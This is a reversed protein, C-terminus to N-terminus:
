KKSRKMREEEQDDESFEPFESAPRAPGTAFLEGSREAQDADLDVDDQENGFNEEMEHEPEGQSEMAHAPEGQSEMECEPEDRPVDTRYRRGEFEMWRAQLSRETTVNRVSDIACSLQYWMSSRRIPDVRTVFERFRQQNSVIILRKQARTIATYVARWSINQSPRTCLYVIIEQQSGQMKHVTLAFGRGYKGFAGTKSPVAARGLMKLVDFEIYEGSEDRFVGLRRVDRGLYDTNETHYTLV